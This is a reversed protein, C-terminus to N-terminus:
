CALFPSNTKQVRKLYNRLLFTTLDSMCIKKWKEFKDKVPKQLVTKNEMVLLLNLKFTEWKKALKEEVSILDSLPYGIIVKTWNQIVHDTKNLSHGSISIYTYRDTQMRITIYRYVVPGSSVISRKKVDNGRWCGSTKRRLSATAPHTKAPLVKRMLISCYFM